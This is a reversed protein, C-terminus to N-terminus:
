AKDELRPIETTLSKLTCPSALPPYPAPPKVVMPIEKGTCHGREGTYVDINQERRVQLRGQPRNASSPFWQLGGCYKKTANGKWALALRNLGTDLFNRGIANSEETEIDIADALDVRGQAIDEVCCYLCQLKSRNQFDLIPSVKIWRNAPLDSESEEWDKVGM